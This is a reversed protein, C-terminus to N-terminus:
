SGINYFVKEDPLVLGLKDRAVEDMRAPDDSNEIDDSLDTNKQKQEAVQQQLSNREAEASTIQSRLNLLSIAAYILLALVVIKTIFGARKLRM